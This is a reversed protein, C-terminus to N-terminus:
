AARVPRVPEDHLPLSLSASTGGGPRPRLEFSAAEGYMQRLRARTNAVGVGAVEAAEGVRPGSGSDLVEVELREGSVRARVEVRGGGCPAVGHKIANEVLPQLIMHPVPADLADEEVAWEVELAGGWRAQEIELFPKLFELEDVLAVETAGASRLARRLLDSLRVLMREALPVNEHMLAGIAHLSNFLFHPNLEMKLARLEAQTRRLEVESLEARLRLESVEKQRFRRAYEVAHAVGILLGYLFLNPLLTRAADALLQAAPKQNHLLVSSFVRSSFVLVFLFLGAALHVGLHRVVRERGLPFRRTLRFALYLFATWTVAAAFGHLVAVELTVIAGNSLRFGRYVAVGAGWIAAFWLACAAWRV